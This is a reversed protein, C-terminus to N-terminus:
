RALHSKKQSTVPEQRMEALARTITCEKPTHTGRCSEEIIALKKELSELELIRERIHVLHERLLTNISSCDGSPNDHYSILTRIEQLSMDFARCNMILHLRELHTHDYDRYNASTRNPEPLLGEREYYRITEVPCQTEQSLQGIKM